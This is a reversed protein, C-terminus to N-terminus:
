SFSVTRTRPYRSRSPAGPRRRSQKGGDTRNADPPEPRAPRPRRQPKRLLSSRTPTPFQIRRARESPARTTRRPITSTTGDRTLVPKDVRLGVLGTAGGSVVVQLAEFENQAAKLQACSTVAPPAARPLVKLSSCVVTVSAGRAAGAAFAALAIAL